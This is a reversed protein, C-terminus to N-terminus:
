QVPVATMKRQMANRIKNYKAAMNIRGESEINREM